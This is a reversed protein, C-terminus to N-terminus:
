RGCLAPGRRNVARLLGHTHQHGSRGAATRNQHFRRPVSAMDDSTLRAGSGSFSQLQRRAPRVRVRARDDATPATLGKPKDPVCSHVRIHVETVSDNTHAVAAM